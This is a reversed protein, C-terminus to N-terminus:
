YIHGSLPQHNQKVREDTVLFFSFYRYKVPKDKEVPSVNKCIYFYKHLLKFSPLYQKLNIHVQTLPHKNEFMGWNLNRSSTQHLKYNLCWNFSGWRGGTKGASSHAIM